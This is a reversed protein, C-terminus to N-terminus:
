WDIWFPQNTHLESIYNMNVESGNDLQQDINAKARDSPLVYFPKLQMADVDAITNVNVSTSANTASALCQMSLREDNESKNM